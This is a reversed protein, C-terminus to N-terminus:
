LRLLPTVALNFLILVMCLAFLFLSLLVTIDRPLMGVMNWGLPSDVAVNPLSATEVLDELKKGSTCSIVAGLNLTVPTSISVSRSQSLDWYCIEHYLELTLSDIATMVQNPADLSTFEESLSVTDPRTYWWYKGIGSPILDACLRGTARRILFTCEHQPLPRQFTSSFYDGVAHYERATYAYIYVTSFHSHQYLEVFMMSSQLMCMGQARQEVFRTTMYKAIDQRWDEEANDGQYTAVTVRSKRGYIKASFVRWVSCQRSVISLNSDCRIERRLDIDGLPITRFDVGYKTEKRAM